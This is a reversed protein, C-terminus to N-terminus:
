KYLADLPVSAKVEMKRPAMQKPEEPLNRIYKNGPAISGFWKDALQKVQEATVNGAVVLIANLPTYHKYFFNKVDQLSANEVHKLEKGITMWRYPHVTYALERMKHWADGSDRICM